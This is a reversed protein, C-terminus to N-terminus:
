NDIIQSLKEKIQVLILLIPPILQHSVEKQYFLNLNEARPLFHLAAINSKHRSKMQAAPAM